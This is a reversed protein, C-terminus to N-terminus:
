RLLHISPTICGLTLVEQMNQVPEPTYGIMFTSTETGAHLVGGILYVKYRGRKLRVRKHERENGLQLTSVPRPPLNIIHLTAGGCSGTTGIYRATDNRVTAIAEM